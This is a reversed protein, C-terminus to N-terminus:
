KLIDRRTILTLLMDIILLYGLIVLLSANGGVMFLYEVMGQGFVLGFVKGFFM